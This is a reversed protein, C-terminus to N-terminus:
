KLLNLIDLSIIKIYYHSYIAFQVLGTLASDSVALACLVEVGGADLFM